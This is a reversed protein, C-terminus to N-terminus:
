NRKVMVSNQISDSYDKVEDTGVFDRRQGFSPSARGIRKGTRILGLVDESSRYEGVLFLGITCRPRAACQRSGNFHDREECGLMCDDSWM